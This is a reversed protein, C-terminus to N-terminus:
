TLKVEDDLLKRWALGSGNSAGARYFSSSSLAERVMIADGKLSSMQCVDSPATLDLPSACSQAYYM